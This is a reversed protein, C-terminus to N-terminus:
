VLIVARRGPPNCQRGQRNLCNHESAPYGFVRLRRKMMESLRLAEARAVADPCVEILEGAVLEVTDTAAIVAARAGRQQPLFV